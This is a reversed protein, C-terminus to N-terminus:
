FHNYNFCIYIFTDVDKAMKKLTFTRFNPISVERWFPKLLCLLGLDSSAIQNSNERNAIRLLMKSLGCKIKSYFSFLTLFKKAKVMVRICM